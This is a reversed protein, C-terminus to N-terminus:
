SATPVQAPILAVSRLAPRGSVPDRVVRLWTRSRDIRHRSAPEPATTFVSLDTEGPTRRELPPPWRNEPQM